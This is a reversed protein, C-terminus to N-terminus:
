VSSSVFKRVDVCFDDDCLMCVASATATATVTATAVKGATCPNPGCEVQLLVAFLQKWQRPLEPHVDTPDAGPSLGPSQQAGLKLKHM